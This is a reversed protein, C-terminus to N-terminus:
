PHERNGGGCPNGHNEEQSKIYLLNRLTTVEACLKGNIKMLEEIMGTLFVSNQAKRGWSILLM